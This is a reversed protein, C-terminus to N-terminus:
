EDLTNTEILEKLKDISEKILRSIHVQSLQVRAAIERQTLGEYFKLYIINQLRLPLKELAQNLLQKTLLTDSELVLPDEVDSVVSELVSQTNDEFLPKDLSVISSHHLADIAEVISEEDLDTASAIQQITPAVGMEQQTTRIYKQIKSQLEVIRRPMKLLRMKDRLYHRIEGLVHSSAYTAFTTEKDPDYYDLAKLLGISGVQVLDLFDDKNFLLKRAIYEILPKYASVIKSKLYPSKNNVYELVLLERNKVSTHKNNM